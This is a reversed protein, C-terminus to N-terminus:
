SSGPPGTPLPLRSATPQLRGLRRLLQTPSLSLQPVSTPTQLRCFTRSIEAVAMNTIGGKGPLFFGPGKIQSSALCKAKTGRSSYSCPSRPMPSFSPFLFFFPSPPWLLFGTVLHLTLNTMRYGASASAGDCFM